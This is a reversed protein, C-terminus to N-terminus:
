VHVRIDSYQGILLSLFINYMFICKTSCFVSFSRGIGVYMVLSCSRSVVQIENFFTRDNLLSVFCCASVVSYNRKVIICQKMFLTAITAKSAVTSNDDTSWTWPLNGVELLLSSIALSSLLLEQSFSVKSDRWCYRSNTQFMQISRLNKSM